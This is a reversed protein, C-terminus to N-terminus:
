WRVLPRGYPLFPWPMAALIIVLSLAYLVVPLRSPRSRAAARPRSAMRGAHALIVALIMAAPHEVSWYRSVGNHMAVAMDTLAARTIPSFAVYLAVGFLLQIDLAITFFIASRGPGAAGPRRVVASAVTWAGVLIVIWRLWSHVTLAIPYM